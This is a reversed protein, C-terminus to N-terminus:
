QHRPGDEAQKKLDAGRLDKVARIRGRHVCDDVNDLVRHANERGTIARVGGVANPSDVASYMVSVVGARIAAVVGIM